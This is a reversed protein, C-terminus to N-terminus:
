NLKWRLLFHNIIPPNYKVEKLHKKLDKNTFKIKLYKEKLHALEEELSIITKRLEHERNRGEQNEEKASKIEAILMEFKKELENIEERHKIESIDTQNSLKALDNKLMTNEEDLNANYTKLDIILSNDKKSIEEFEQIKKEANKLTKKIKEFEAVLASNDSKENQILLQLEYKEQDMNQIEKSQMEFKESLSNNIQKLDSVENLLLDREKKIETNESEYRRGLTLLENNALTLEKHSEKLSKYKIMKKAIIENKEEFMKKKEEEFKTKTKLIKAESLQLSEKVERYKEKM